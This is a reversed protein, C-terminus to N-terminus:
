EKIRLIQGVMCAILEIWRITAADPLKMQRTGSIEIWGLTEGEPNYFFFDLYDAELSDGLTRRRMGILGPRKYTFEEGPAYPHDETLYIKTHSSIEHGPYTSTDNVQATTYAIRKFEDAAEKDIGNVVRYHYMKDVPDMVAISVSAIGFEKSILDAIETLFELQNGESREFRWFLGTFDALTKTTHDMWGHSYDMRLKRAVEKPDLVESTKDIHDM